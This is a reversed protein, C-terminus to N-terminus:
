FSYHASFEITRPSNKASTIQGFNTDNVNNDPNNYSVLNMVNFADARFGVAQGETIHFDKFLSSDIQEFGPARQTSM